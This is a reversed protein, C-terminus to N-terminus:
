WGPPKALADQHAAVISVLEDATVGARYTCMAAVQTSRIAGNIKMEYDIFERSEETGSVWGADGAARLFAFGNDLARDQRGLLGASLEEFSKFNGEADLYWDPHQMLELQGSALYEGTDGIHRGVAECAKEASVSEPTIWFCAEGRHLGEAIYPAVIDLLQEQDRYFRCFHWGPTVKRVATGAGAKPLSILGRQVFDVLVNAIDGANLGIHAINFEDPFLGALGDVTHETPPIGMALLDARVQAPIIDNKQTM